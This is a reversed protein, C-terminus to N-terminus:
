GPVVRSRAPLTILWQTGAGPASSIALEAGAEAALDAALSLGLHGPEPDALVLAPDFGRGDDTIRVVCSDDGGKGSSQEFRFRVEHAGAHKAVNRLCERALRYVLVAQDDALETPQWELDFHVTTGRSRLPEALDDLSVLLNQGVMKAPYIEVMLSRLSAISSRVTAAAAHIMEALDARGSRNAVEGARAVILASGALDQVPGDHLSAAIRRREDQAGDIVKTLLMERQETASDLRSLLRWLLPALLALVVALTLGLVLLMVRFLDQERNRVPDYDSYVEFLLRHGGPTTVSRYVELMPGNGVDDLTNEGEDLSSIVAGVTGTRLVRQKDELLPFTRGILAPEDSYVIRGEATWLKVRVIGHPQVGQRVAQDLQAIAEPDGTIVADQLAPEVVASALLDVTHAGDRIADGQAFNRSALAGAVGAVLVVALTALVFQFLLARRSPLAAPRPPRHGTSLTHWIPSPAAIQPSGDGSGHATTVGLPGHARLGM